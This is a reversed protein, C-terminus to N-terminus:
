IHLILVRCDVKKFDLEVLRVAVMPTWVQLVLVLAVVVELQLLATALVMFVLLLVVRHRLTALHAAKYTQLLEV